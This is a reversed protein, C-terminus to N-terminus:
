KFNDANNEKINQTNKLVKNLYNDKPGQKLYQNITKDKIHTIINGPGENYMAIMLEQQLSASFDKNMMKFLSNNCNIRGYNKCCSIIYYNAIDMAKEPDTLDKETFEIGDIEMVNKLWYNVYNVTEPLIQM